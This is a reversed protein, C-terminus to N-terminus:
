SARDITMVSYTSDMIHTNEASETMKPFMEVYTKDNGYTQNQLIDDHCWVPHWIPHWVFPVCLFKLWDDSFSFM